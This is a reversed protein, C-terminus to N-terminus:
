DMQLVISLAYTNRGTIGCSLGNTIWQILTLRCPHSKKEGQTSEFKRGESWFGPARDLQV